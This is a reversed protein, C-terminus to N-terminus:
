EVCSVSVNVVCVLIHTCPENQAVIVDFWCQIDAWNICVCFMCVVVAGVVFPLM